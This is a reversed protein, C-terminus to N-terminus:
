HRGRCANGGFAPDRVSIVITNCVMALGTGDHLPANPPAEDVKPRTMLKEFLRERESMQFQIVREVEDAEEPRRRPDAQFKAFLHKSQPFM